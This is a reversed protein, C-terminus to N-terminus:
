DELLAPLPATDRLFTKVLDKVKISVYNGDPSRISIHGAQVTSAEPKGTSAAPASSATYGGSGSSGSTTPLPILKGDGLKGFMIEATDLQPLPKSLHGKGDM